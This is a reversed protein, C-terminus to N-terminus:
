VKFLDCTIAIGEEPKSPGAIQSAEAIFQLLLEKLREYDAHSVTQVATFHVAGNEFDQADQVARNRWNQHHLIVLPSDKSAHFEGSKYIWKENKSEIFGQAELAKLYGLLIEPRLALRQSLAGLSQFEPISTLFHAASWIWNSFYNVQLADVSLGTRAAREQVSENKRKMESLRTKLHTRYEPDGAREFDVLTQFYHAHDHSLKWYRSLKFAHDPTLHLNESIVRSLYSRQCNLAEAARTLQGRRTKASLMQAMFSKYSSFEFVTKSKMNVLICSFRGNNVIFM